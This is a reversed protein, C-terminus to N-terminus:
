KLEHATYQHVRAKTAAEDEAQRCRDSGCSTKPRDWSRLNQNIGRLDPTGDSDEPQPNSVSSM